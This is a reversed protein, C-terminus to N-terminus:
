LDSEREAVFEHDSPWNPQVLHWQTPRHRILEEFETALQQTMDAIRDDRSGEVTSEIPGKIVVEHGRRDKFYVAVPLLVANTRLALAAPGGPLLTEEGFFKVQIGSTTLDRDSVLAILQGDKLAALLGRMTASGNGALIVDIKLSSRYTLFWELVRQNALAEAVATVRVDVIDAVTAAMEWNGLHPLAVVISRGEAKANSLHEEGTISVHRRVSPVRRPRFWFTEAWYRGYAGFMARAAAKHDANPGLVRRMHRVAMDRRGKAWIWSLRGGLEGLRRIVFEPLVGVLGAGVRYAAYTLWDTM